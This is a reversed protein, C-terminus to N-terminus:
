QMEGSDLPVALLSLRIQASFRMACMNKRFLDAVVITHRKENQCFLHKSAQKSEAKLLCLMFLNIHKINRRAFFLAILIIIECYYKPNTWISNSILLKIPKIAFSFHHFQFVISPLAALLLLL